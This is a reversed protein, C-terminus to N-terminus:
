DGLSLSFVSQPPVCVLGGPGLAERGSQQQMGFRQKDEDTNDSGRADAVLRRLTLREGDLPQGDISARMWYARDSRNVGLLSARAGSGRMAVLRLDYGGSYRTGAVLAPQVQVADDLLGERLVRLAWYTPSPYLTDSRRDWKILQWPGQVGLAHWMAAGVTAKPMLSLLFDASSVGGGAGSAQYWNDEWRGILPQSPWRAHETVYVQQAPNHARYRQALRDIFENMVKVSHGDYYPHITVGDSQAALQAALETDFSSRERTQSRADWPATQGLVLLRAQPQARRLGQLLPLAREAYQAPTWNVPPWDLENGLEYAAQHCPGPRPCLRPTNTQIWQAYDLNDRLMEPTSWLRGKPGLLNLMWLPQGEVQGMLRLFEEPGLEAVAAGDPVYQEGIRSRQALPGIARRWEFSTSGAPYRYMAGKFPKLWEVLEPRLAGHRVYGIQADYWPLDFGFLAPPVAARLVTASRIQVPQVRADAPCSAPMATQASAQAGLACLLLGALGRELRRALRQMM